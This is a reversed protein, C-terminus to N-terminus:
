TIQLDWTVDGDPNRIDQPNRHDDETTGTLTPIFAMFAFLPLLPVAGSMRVRPVLLPQSTLM